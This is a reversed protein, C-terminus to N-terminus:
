QRFVWGEKKKPVYIRANSYIHALLIDTICTYTIHMHIHTHMNIHMHAHMHMRMHMHMHMHMHMYMHTYM